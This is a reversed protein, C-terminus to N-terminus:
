RPNGALGGRAAGFAEHEARDRLLLAGPGRHLVSDAGQEPAVGLQPRQELLGLARHGLPPRPHGGDEALLPQALAPQGELQCVEQARPRPGGPGVDDLQRRALRAAVVGVLHQGLQQAPRELQRSAPGRLVSALEQGLPQALLRCQRRGQEEAPHRVVIRRHDRQPRGRAGQTGVDGAGAHLRQEPPGGLARHQHHEVVSVPSVMGQEVSELLRRHGLQRQPDAREATGGEGLAAGGPTAPRRPRVPQPELPEVRGAGRGQAAVQQSGGDVDGLRHHSAQDLAGLRHRQQDAIEDPPQPALPQDALLVFAVVPVDGGLHQLAQRVGGRELPQDPALEVLQGRLQGGVGAQQRHEGRLEGALLHLPHQRGHIQVQGVGKGEVGGDAGIAQALGLDHDAVAGPAEGEAGLHHALRHGPHDAFRQGRADV